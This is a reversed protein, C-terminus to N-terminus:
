YHKIRREQYNAHEKVTRKFHNFSWALVIENTQYVERDFWIRGAGFEVWQDERPDNRHNDTGGLEM